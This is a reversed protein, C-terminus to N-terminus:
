ITIKKKPTTLKGYRKAGLKMLLEMEAQESRDYIALYLDIVTTNREMILRHQYVGVIDDPLEFKGSPFMDLTVIKAMEVYGGDYAWDGELIVSSNGPITLHYFKIEEKPDWNKTDAWIGKVYFNGSGLSYGGWLTVYDLSDPDRGGIIEIKYYQLWTPDMQVLAAVGLGKHDIMGTSTLEIIEQKKIAIKNVLKTLELTKNVDKLKIMAYLMRM